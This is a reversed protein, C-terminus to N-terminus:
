SPLAPDGTGGEGGQGCARGGGWADAREGGSCLRIHCCRPCSTRSAKFDHLSGSGFRVTKPLRPSSTARTSAAIATVAKSHGQLTALEAHNKLSWVRLTRDQAVTLARQDALIVSSKLEVQPSEFSGTLLLGVAKANQKFVRVALPQTVLVVNRDPSTTFGRVDTFLELNKGAPRAQAVRGDNVKVMVWTRTTLKKEAGFGFATLLIGDNEFAFYHITEGPTRAVTLPENGGVEWIELKEAGAWAVFRGDASIAVAKVSGVQASFTRAKWPTRCPACGAFVPWPGAVPPALFWLGAAIRERDTRLPLGWLTVTGKATGTLVTHGRHGIRVASVAGDHELVTVDGGQVPWLRVQGDEGGSVVMSGDPTIAVSRVAGDHGRLVRFADDRVPFEVAPNKLDPTDPQPTTQPTDGRDPGPTPWAAWSAVAIVALALIGIPLLWRRTKTPRM